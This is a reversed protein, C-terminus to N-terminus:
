RDSWDVVETLGQQRKKDMRKQREGKGEEKIVNEEEKREERERFAAPGSM